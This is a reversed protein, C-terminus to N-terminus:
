QGAGCDHTEIYSTLAHRIIDTITDGHQEACALAPRWVEESIRVARMPTNAV